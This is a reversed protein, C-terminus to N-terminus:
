LVDDKASTTPGGSRLLAEARVVRRKLLPILHECSAIVVDGDQAGSAAHMERLWGALFAERRRRRAILPLSLPVVAHV